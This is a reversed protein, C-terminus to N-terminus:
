ESDRSWMWTHWCQRCPCRWAPGSQIAKQRWWRWSRHPKWLSGTSPWRCSEWAAPNVRSPPRAPHSQAPCVPGPSLKQPPRCRPPRCLCRNAPSTGRTTPYSKRWTLKPRSWSQLRPTSKWLVRCRWMWSVQPFCASSYKFCNIKNKKIKIKKPRSLHLLETLPKQLVSSSSTLKFLNVRPELWRKKFSVSTMQSALLIFMNWKPTKLLLFFPPKVMIIGLFHAATWGVSCLGTHHRTLWM